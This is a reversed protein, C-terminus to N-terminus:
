ASLPRGEGAGDDGGILLNQQQSTILTHLNIVEQSANEAKAHLAIRALRRSNSYPVIIEAGRENTNYIRAGEKMSECLLPYNYDFIAQSLADIVMHNLSRHSASRFLGPMENDFLIFDDNDGVIVRAIDYVPM